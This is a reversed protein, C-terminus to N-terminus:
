THRQREATWLMVSYLLRRWRLRGPEFGRQKEREQSPIWPPHSFLLTAQAGIAVPYNLPTCVWGMNVWGLTPHDYDGRGPQPVGWHMPRLRVRFTAGCGPDQVTTGPPAPKFHASGCTPRSMESQTMHCRRQLILRTGSHTFGMPNQYVGFGRPRGTAGGLQSHKVRM